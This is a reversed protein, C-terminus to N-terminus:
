GIIKIKIESINKIIDKIKYKLLLYVYVYKNIIKFKLNIKLNEYKLYKSCSLGGLYFKGIIEEHASFSLKMYYLKLIADRDGAIKYNESYGGSDLFAKRRFFTTGHPLTHNPLDNLQPIWTMCNSTGDETIISIGFSIVDIVDESLKQIILDYSNAIAEDGSNIWVVYKGKAKLLGKNMANYVGSDPESILNTAKYFNRAITVSTDISGGDIFIFEIKPNNRLPLFSELTRPLRKAGNINITIISLLYDDEDKLATGIEENLASIGASLLENIM